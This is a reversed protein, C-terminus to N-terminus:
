SVNSVEGGRGQAKTIAGEAFHRDTFSLEPLLAAGAGELGEVQIRGRM